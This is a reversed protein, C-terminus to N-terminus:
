IGTSKGWIRGLLSTTPVILTLAVVKFFKPLYIVRIWLRSIIHAFWLAIILPSYAMHM